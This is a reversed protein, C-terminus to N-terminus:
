LLDAPKGGRGSPESAQLQRQEHRTRESFSGYLYRGRVLPVTHALGVSLLVHLFLGNHGCAAYVAAAALPAACRGAQGCASVLSM